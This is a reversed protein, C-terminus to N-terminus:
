SATSRAGRRRDSERNAIARVAALLQADGDGGATVLHANLGARRAGEIDATASDGLMWAVDPAGMRMMAEAFIRSHPKEWGVEASCVIAEMHSALGLADVLDALEPVHNSVIAQRWGHSRCIGLAEHAQPEVQWFRPDIYLARVSAAAAHAVDADVGAELYANAFVPQLAAWWRTPDTLQEHGVAPRHWPFGSHLHPRLDHETLRRSSVAALSQALCRGWSGPRTALTGDFDWFVVVRGRTGDIRQDDIISPPATV